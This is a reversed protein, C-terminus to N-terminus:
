CQGDGRRSEARNMDRQCADEMRRDDDRREGPVDTDLVKTPTHENDRRTVHGCWNLRIQAIKASAQGVGSCRFTTQQVTRMRALLRSFAM